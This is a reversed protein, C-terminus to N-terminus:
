AFGAVVSAVSTKGTGPNGLFVMVPRKYGQSLGLRRRLKDAMADRLYQRLSEKLDKMGVVNNLKDDMNRIM